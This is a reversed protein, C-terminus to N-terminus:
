RFPSRARLVRTVAEVEKEDYYHVGPWEQPLIVKNDADM